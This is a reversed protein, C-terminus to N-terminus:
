SFEGPNQKMFDTRKEVIWKMIADVRNPGFDLTLDDSLFDFDPCFDEFASLEVAHMRNGGPIYATKGLVYLIDNVISYRSSRSLPRRMTSKEFAVSYAITSRAM